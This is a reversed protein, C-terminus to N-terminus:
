CSGSGGCCGSQKAEGASEAIGAWRTLEARSSYRGALAVAGDVLIL